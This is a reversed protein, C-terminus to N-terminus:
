EKDYRQKKDNYILQEQNLRLRVFMDALLGILWMLIGFSFLYVAGFALFIYPSFAGHIFYHTLVFIGMLVGIIVLPLGLLGFFRMPRYDRYARIIIKITQFMYKSISGAVRSKREPFYRVKVPVSKMMVGKNALDLFSEQTYTFKGTLNLKLMAEKSYARFGCSVDPFRHGVIFGILDSMRKNGWFKIASMYDPRQAAGDDTTFRDGSVFDAKKDLIPQLLPLIDNSDFQGDADINVLVDAGSNLAAQLGTHFAQGVGMNRFHSIVTAGAVRALNATEDKSGDDVVIIEIEDIQPLSRPMTGIVSSIKEAENFAPILIILKM